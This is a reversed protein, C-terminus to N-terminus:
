AVPAADRVEESAKAPLATKFARDMVRELIAPIGVMDLGRFCRLAKLVGAMNQAQTKFRDVPICNDLPASSGLVYSRAKRRAEDFKHYIHIDGGSGAAVADPHHKKALRRFAEDIEAISPLPNDIQLQKQWSFDETAKRSFWVAVGPDRSEGSADNRTIRVEAAGLLSLERVVAERYYSYPKKWQSRGERDDLLTRGWGDPWKLPSKEEHNVKM